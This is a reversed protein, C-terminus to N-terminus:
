STSTSPPTSTAQTTQIETSAGTPAAQSIAFDTQAAETIAFNQGSPPPSSAFAAKKMAKAKTAKAKKVAKTPKVVPVAPLRAEKTPGGNAKLLNQLAKSQFTLSSAVMAADGDVIMKVRNATIPPPDLYFRGTPMWLKFSMIADLVLGLLTFLDIGNAPDPSGKGVLFKLDTIYGAGTIDLMNQCFFKTEALTGTAPPQNVQLRYANQKALNPKANVVVFPDTPPILAQVKGQLKAAQLENIALSGVKPGALDALNTVAFPACGLAPRYAADLLLNDSGNTIEQAGPMAAVNRTTKQALKNNADILYTTVVNDSPDMDIIQFSRTTYCPKGNKGIGLAPIKNDSITRAAKFFAAGNCAAFQGFISGDVGGNSCKAKILDAGKNRDALTTTQGNTGFWCGIVHQTPLVPRVPPIFNKGVVSGQNVLLPSYVSLAGTATNVITCEAFTPNVTQDCGTVTWPTSLGRATLANPPLTVVCNLGSEAM